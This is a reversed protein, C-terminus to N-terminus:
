NNFNQNRYRKINISVFVRTIRITYILIKFFQRTFNDQITVLNEFFRNPKEERSIQPIKFRALVKGGLEM